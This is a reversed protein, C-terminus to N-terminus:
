KREENFLQYTNWIEELEALEKTKKADCRLSVAVVLANIISLPAVLSDVVSAMDSHAPLVISANEAIPALRSDTIAITQANRTHAFHMVKVAKSSYRPFSIGLVVDKEGVHIMEGFVEAETNPRVFFVDDLLMQLYYTIFSALSRCSGAGFIYIRRANVLAEVARDFDEHSAEELTQRINAIDYSLVSELIDENEMQARSVDIRETITLKSRILDQVAKQLQPYGEFGLEIAFRVVTSESVGVAEGLKYATMFAATDYHEAIFAAIRKQGKSMGSQKSNILAMLNPKM